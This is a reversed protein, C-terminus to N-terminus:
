FDFGGSLSVSDQQGSADLAGNPKKQDRSRGSPSLDYQATLFVTAFKVKVGGFFRHRTILDQDPFRFNALLDNDTGRQAEACYDGLPTTGKAMKTAFADCSPTADIVGSKAGIFLSSWGAFPEMRVTGMVGFSKSVLLDVGGINMRVQDTGTVHSGSVRVAFSPIPWDHFGEHLALKAYGQWALMQSDILHVVGTGVEFAPLPLWLGKRVFVGVTTLWPSPRTAAANSSSVGEVGNWFAQDRSIRTVGVEGSVQFGSFGLTDAPVVLRPAMVVALESMLSRFRAEADADLAISEVRGSGPQRKVWSCEPVPGNLVGPGPSRQDCLGLLSLDNQGAHAANGALVLVAFAFIAAGIGRTRRRPLVEFGMVLCGM